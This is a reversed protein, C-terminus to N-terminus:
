AVTKRLFELESRDGENASPRNGFNDAIYGLFYDIMQIILFLHIKLAKNPSWNAVGTETPFYGSFPRGLVTPIHNNRLYFGFFSKKPLNSFLNIKSGM